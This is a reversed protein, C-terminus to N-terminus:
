GEPVRDYLAVAVALSPLIPVKSLKLTVGDKSVTTCYVTRPMVEEVVCYLTVDPNGRDPRSPIVYVLLGARGQDLGSPLVNALSAIRSLCGPNPSSLVKILALNSRNIAAM